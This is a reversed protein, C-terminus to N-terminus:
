PRPPTSGVTVSASRTAPRMGAPVLKPPRARSASAAQAASAEAPTVASPTIRTTSAPSPAPGACPRRRARRPDAAARAPPRRRRPGAARRRVPRPARCPTQRSGPGHRAHEGRDTQERRGQLAVEDARPRPGEVVRAEVGRQGGEGLMGRAQDTGPRRRRGGDVAAVLPLAVLEHHPRHGVEVLGMAEAVAEGPGLRGDLHDGQAGRGRARGTDGQGVQRRRLARRGGTGHREGLGVARDPDGGAPRGFGTGRAGEHQPPVCEHRRSGAASCTSIERSPPIASSIPATRRREAELGFMLSRASQEAATKM